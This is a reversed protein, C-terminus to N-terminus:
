SLGWLQGYRMAIALYRRGYPDKLYVLDAVTLLKLNDPVTLATSTGQDSTSTVVGAVFSELGYRDRQYAFYPAPPDSGPVTPSGPPDPCFNLLNSAALNYVAETYLQQSVSQFAINVITLANDLAYQPYPSGPPLASSPVQVINALFALFDTINPSDSWSM